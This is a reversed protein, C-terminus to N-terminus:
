LIYSSKKFVNGMSLIKLVFILRRLDDGQVIFEEKHPCLNDLKARKMEQDYVLPYLRCGYPRFKYIKCKSGELFFCRGGINKLRWIGESREAFSRLSYGLKVIRNIDLWTLYMKTEHCCLACNHKLCPEGSDLASLKM